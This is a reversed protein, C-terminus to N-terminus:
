GDGRFTRTRWRPVRCRGPTVRGPGSPMLGRYRVCSLRRMRDAQADAPTAPRRRRRVRPDDHTPAALVHREDTIGADSVIRRSIQTPPVRRTTAISFRRGIRRVVVRSLLGRRRSEVVEEVARRAGGHLRLLRSGLPSGWGPRSPACFTAGSPTDDYLCAGRARETCGGHRRFRPRPQGPAPCRPKATSLALWQASLGFM